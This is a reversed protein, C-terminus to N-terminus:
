PLLLNLLACVLVGCVTPLVAALMTWKWSGTERRITLLTTSCPWHFLFFVMTCLTRKPTWGAALLSQALPTAADALFRGAGSLQMLVIPLVLENAPLALVFALLIVGDMGLARGLPALLAAAHTLLATGGVQVNSLAWVCLGAPAAVAAARGLVGLTRERMARVVVRGINPRRYPPLELVFQSAEGKLVTRSLLASAGMSAGVGALVCGCLVLAQAASGRVLICSLSILAPFRGNCPLFSNTLIAILRERRTDIIRCGIVGAANCGFGMCTTLAQKGCAGCRAFSSDMLFALRPLYGAEELLTFLPFFIMVPPLMVSIVTGTTGIVGDILAGSLWAPAGIREALWHLGNTLASFMQELWASPANAGCITLWLVIALLALVTFAGTVRGMLIRDSVASKKGAMKRHPQVARAIQEARHVFAEPTKEETLRHPHPREFGDTVNRIREQLATLGERRGASTGVVPVGLLRELLRLDTQTGHADAEDLLNVCLIVNQTLELLQVALILSRELCTADCVAVVCAAGGTRISDAAIVEEESRGLLSYTGPLDTLCYKEAKYEYYGQAAGVTKGPWNGTHQREGTLANFLTSKGVNPNGALLVVREARQVFPNGTTEGTRAGASM